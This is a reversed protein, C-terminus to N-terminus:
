MLGTWCSKPAGVEEYLESTIERFDLSPRYPYEKLFETM